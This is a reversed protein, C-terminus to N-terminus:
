LQSIYSSSLLIFYIRMLWEVRHTHETHLHLVIWYFRIVAWVNSDCVKDSYGPEYLYMSKLFFFFLMLNYPAHESSFREILEKHGFEATLPPFQGTLM